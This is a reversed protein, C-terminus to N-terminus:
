IGKQANFNRRVMGCVELMGFKKYGEKWREDCCLQVMYYEKLLALMRNMLEIGIGQIHYQPLVEFLPIYSMLVGDSLANIFGVVNDNEVALVIYESNKLIEYHKEPSPCNPWNVFFGGKLMEPNINELTNQYKIM